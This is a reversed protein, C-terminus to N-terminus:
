WKGVTNISHHGILHCEIGKQSMESKTVVANKPTRVEEYGSGNWLSNCVNDILFVNCFCSIFQKYYWFTNALSMIRLGSPRGHGHYSKAYFEM